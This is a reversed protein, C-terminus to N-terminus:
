YECFRNRNLFDDLRVQLEFKLEEVHRFPKAGILIVSCEPVVPAANADVQREFGIRVWAFQPSESECESVFAAM